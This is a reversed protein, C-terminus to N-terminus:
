KVLDVRTHTPDENNQAHVSAARRQQGTQQVLGPYYHALISMEYWLGADLVRFSKEFIVPESAYVICNQLVVSVYHFVPVGQYWAVQM